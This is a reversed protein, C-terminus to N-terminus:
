DLKNLKGLADGIAAPHDDDVPPLTGPPPPPEIGLASLGKTTYREAIRIIGEGITALGTGYLLGMILTTRFGIVVGATTVLVLVLVAGDLAYNVSRARLGIVVRTTVAAFVAAILSAAEYPYGLFHWIVPQPMAATTAAAAGLM